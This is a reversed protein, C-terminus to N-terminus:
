YKRKKAHRDHDYSLENGPFTRGLHFTIMIIVIMMFMFMILFPTVGTSHHLHLWYSITRFGRRTGTIVLMIMMVIMMLMLIIIMIIIIVTTPM